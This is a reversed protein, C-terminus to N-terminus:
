QEDEAFDGEKGNIDVEEYMEGPDLLDKVNNDTAMDVDVNIVSTKKGYMNEFAAVGIRKVMMKKWQRTERDTNEAENMLSYNNNARQKEFNEKISEFTDANNNWLIKYSNTINVLIPIVNSILNPWEFKPNLFFFDFENNQINFRIQDDEFIHSHEDSSLLAVCMLCIVKIFIYLLIINQEIGTIDDVNRNKTKEDVLNNKTFECLESVNTMTNKYIHKLRKIFDPNIFKYSTKSTYIEDIIGRHQKIYKKKYAANTNIQFQNIVKSFESQMENAFFDNFVKAQKDISIDQKTEKCLKSNCINLVVNTLIEFNQSLIPWQKTIKKSINNMAQEIDKIRSKLSKSLDGFFIDKKDFIKFFEDNEFYKNTECFTKVCNQFSKRQKNIQPKFIDVKNTKHKIEYSITKKTHIDRVNKNLSQMIKPPKYNESIQTILNNWEVNKNKLFNWYNTKENINDLCCFLTKKITNSKLVSEAKINENLINIFNVAFRQSAVSKSTRVSLKNINQEDIIKCPRFMSWEKYLRLIDKKKKLNEIKVRAVNLWKEIVTNELLDKIEIRILNEIEAFSKTQIAHLEQKNVQLLTCTIYKILSKSDTDNIPFGKLSSYSSCKNLNINIIVDPLSCQVCIIVLAAIIVISGSQLPKLNNEYTEKAREIEQTQKVKSKVKHSIQLLFGRYNNDLKSINYKREAYVMIFSHIKKSLKLDFIDIFQQLVQHQFSKSKIQELEEQKDFHADIDIQTGKDDQEKLIAHFNKGFGEGEIFSDEDEGDFHINDYKGYFTEPVYTSNVLSMKCYQEFEQLDEEVDNLAIQLDNYKEDILINNYAKFTFSNIKKHPNSEYKWKFGGDTQITKFNLIRGNLLLNINQTKLPNTLLTKIDFLDDIPELTKTPKLASLTKPKTTRCRIKFNDILIGERLKYMNFFLHKLNEYVDLNKIINKSINKSHKPTVVLLKNLHSNIDYIDLLSKDFNMVDDLTTIQGSSHLHFLEDVNSIGLQQFQTPSSYITYEKNFFDYKSFKEGDYKEDYIFFSNQFPNKIEFWVVVNENLEIKLREGLRKIIKGHSEKGTYNDKIIVKTLVKLDNIKKLYTTLDFKKTKKNENTNTFGIIEPCYSNESELVRHVEKMIIADQKWEYIVDCSKLLKLQKENNIEYPLLFKDITELSHIQTKTKKFDYANQLFDSMKDLDKNDYNEADWVCITNEINKKNKNLEVEFIKKKMHIVPLTNHLLNLSKSFENTKPKILSLYNDICQKFRRSSIDEKNTILFSLQVAIMDADYIIKSTDIVDMEFEKFFDDLITIEENDQDNLVSEIVFTQTNDLDINEDIDQDIDPGVFDIIEYYTEEQM